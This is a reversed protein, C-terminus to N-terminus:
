PKAKATRAVVNPAQLKLQIRGPTVHIAQPEKGREAAHDNVYGMLASWLASQVVRGWRAALLPNGHPLEDTTAVLGAQDRAGGLSFTVILAACGTQDTELDLSVVIARALLRVKISDLHVLVEDGADVWIVQNVTAAPAAASGDAPTGVLRARLEAALAAEDGRDAHVYLGAARKAM